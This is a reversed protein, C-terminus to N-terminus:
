KKKEKSDVNIEKPGRVLDLIDEFFEKQEHNYKWPALISVVYMILFVVLREKMTLQDKVDFTHPYSM